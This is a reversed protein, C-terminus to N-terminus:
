PGFGLVVVVNVAQEGGGTERSSARLDGFADEVAAAEM